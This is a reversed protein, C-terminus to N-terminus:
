QGTGWTSLPRNTLPDSWQMTLPPHYPQPHVVPQSAAGDVHEEASSGEAEQGKAWPQKPPWTKNSKAEQFILQGFSKLICKNYLYLTM